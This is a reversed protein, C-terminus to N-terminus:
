GRRYNSSSAPPPERVDKGALRRRQQPPTRVGGSGCDTRGDARHDQESDRPRFVGRRTLSDAARRHLAHGEVMRGDLRPARPARRDKERDAPQQAPGRQVRRSVQRGDPCPTRACCADQDRAAPAREIEQLRRAPRLRARDLRGSEIKLLKLKRADTIDMGGSKAKFKYFTVRRRWRKRCVDATPVGREHEALIAIIREEPFRSKRM